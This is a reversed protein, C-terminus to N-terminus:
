SVFVFTMSATQFFFIFFCRKDDFVSVPITSQSSSVCYM